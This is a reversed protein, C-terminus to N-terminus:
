PVVDLAEPGFQALLEDAARVDPAAGLREFAARALSAETAAVDPQRDAALARAVVM